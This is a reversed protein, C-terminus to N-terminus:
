LDNYFLVAAWVLGVLVAPVIGIRVAGLNGGAVQPVATTAISDVRCVTKCSAGAADHSTNYAMDIWEIDLTALGGVTMNGPWSSGDSWMKLQFNSPQSPVSYTKNLTPIDNILWQSRGPLWDLQYENWDTWSGNARGGPAPIPIQTSAEPIINGQPDQAHLTLMQCEQLVQYRRTFTKRSQLFCIPLRVVGPQNTARMTSHEDRTLIEIDSEQDDSHYFFMGACAGSSGTVRARVRISAFLYSLETTELDSTSQFSELRNTRLTLHIPSNPADRASAIILMAVSM